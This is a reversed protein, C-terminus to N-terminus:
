NQLINRIGWFIVLFIMLLFLYKFLLSEENVYGRVKNKYEKSIEIDIPEYLKSLILNLEDQNKLLLNKDQFKSVSLLAKKYYNIKQM